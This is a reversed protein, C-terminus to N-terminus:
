GAVHPGDGSDDGSERNVTATGMSEVLRLFRNDHIKERLTDMLLEHNLKDFCQSIDGEIFWRAATWTRKLARLATHCGRNPRFGHSHDSFQPEYYAELLQRMVEQLLKDSWTPMGLPRKGGKRKPTYVRKAPKWRYTETRVADIIRSIKNLSMGDVTEGTVGPTMIGRNARLRDYARTYLRPNYLQRYIEDLPLGRKGREHIIALVTEADQMECVERDGTIQTEQTGEGHGERSRTPRTFPM